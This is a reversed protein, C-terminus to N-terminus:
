IIEYIEDINCDLYYDFDWKYKNMQKRKAELSEYTEEGTMKDLIEKVEAPVPVVGEYVDDYTYSVYVLMDDNYTIQEPLTDISYFKGRPELQLLLTGNTAKQIESLREKLKNRDNIHKYVAEKCAFLYQIQPKQTTTAKMTHM